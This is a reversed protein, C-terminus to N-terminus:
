PFLHCAPPWLKGAGAQELIEYDTHLNFKNLIFWFVYSFLTYSQFWLCEPHLPSWELSLTGICCSVMFGLWVSAQGFTLGLSCEVTASPAQASPVQATCTPETGSSGDQAGELPRGDRGPDRRPGAQLQALVRSVACVAAERCLAMLDAGVFGPTLRALHRFHSTEPLRLKRCLTQLIRCFISPFFESERLLLSFLGSFVKIQLGQDRDTTSFHAWHSISYSM